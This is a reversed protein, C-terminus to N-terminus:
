FREIEALLSFFIIGGGRKGQLPKFRVGDILGGRSVTGDENMVEFM